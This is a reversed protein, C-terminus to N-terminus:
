FSVFNCSPFTLTSKKRISDLIQEKNIIRKPIEEDQIENSNKNNLYKPQEGSYFRPRLSNQSIGVKSKSQTNGGIIQGDEDDGKSSGMIKNYNIGYLKRVVKDYRMQTDISVKHKRKHLNKDASYVALDQDPFKKARMPSLLNAIDREMDEKATDTQNSKEIVEDINGFSPNWFRKHHFKQQRIVKM